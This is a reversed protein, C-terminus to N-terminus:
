DSVAQHQILLMKTQEQAIELQRLRKQLYKGNGRTIQLPDFEVKETVMKYYIAAIKRATAVVAKRAGSKAKKRRLYDGIPNQARWLASAADRFAQGAVNKKKKVKSSIVKGGTIKNNPVVNLWSLFQKETPFKEKLDVGTESFIALATTEKIGYIKTVEVGLATYLYQSVDFNPNNKSKQVKDTKQKLTNGSTMEKIIKESEADCQKLQNQLFVYHEYALKLNFLQEERWNGELSKILTERSAKIRPHRHRALIKADREGQLIETIIKTGTTGNLDRIVNNLKINMLDFA